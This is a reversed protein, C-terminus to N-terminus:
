DVLLPVTKTYIESFTFGVSAKLNLM